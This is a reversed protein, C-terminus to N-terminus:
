LLTYTPNIFHGEGNWTMFGVYGGNYGNVTAEQILIAGAMFKFHKATSPGTVEIRIHRLSNSCKHGFLQYIEPLGSVPNAGGAQFSKSSDWNVNQCIWAAGPDNQAQHGFTIGCTDSTRVDTELVFEDEKDFLVNSVYFVDGFGNNAHIMLNEYKGEWLNGWKYDSMDDVRNKTGDSVTYMGPYLDFDSGIYYKFNTITVKSNWTNFSVYGGDYTAQHCAVLTKNVYFSVWGDRLLEIRADYGGNETEQLGFDAFLAKTQDQDLGHGWIKSYHYGEDTNIDIGMWSAGPDAKNAIGAGVAFARANNTSEVKVHFDLILDEGEEAYLETVYQQDGAAQNDGILTLGDESVTWNGWKYDSMETAFDIAKLSISKTPEGCESCPMYYSGDAALRINKLGSMPTHPLKDIPRTEPKHCRECQRTEEGKSSCSAPTTESWAGWQHGLAEVPRTETKDCGSCERTEEGATECKPETTLKWEGWTHVHETPTQPEGDGGSPTPQVNAKSGCSCMFLGATFALIKFVKKM